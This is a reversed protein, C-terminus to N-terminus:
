SLKTVQNVCSFGIAAGVVTGTSTEVTIRPLSAGALVRARTGWRVAGM